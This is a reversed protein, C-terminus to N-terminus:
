AKALLTAVLERRAIARAKDVEPKCASCVTCQHLDSTFRFHKKGCKTCTVEVKYKKASPDFQLTDANAHPYNAKINAKKAALEKQRRLVEAEVVKREHPPLSALLAETSSSNKNSM